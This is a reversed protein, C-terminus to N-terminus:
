GGPDAAESTGAPAAADDRANKWRYPLLEGVNAAPWTQVRLLVDTLWESPNVDNAVCTAVLSYLIATNEGALEHGVFLFNKRGLAVGRLAREAANNDPPLQVNSLFRTMETWHDLLYGCATAVPGRPPWKAQEAEAWAKLDDMAKRSRSQRLAHHQSTRVIGQAKAEAEVRYVELILALAADVSPVKERLEYLKRRAHALCGARERGEPTTVPNYGTYADVVLAGQSGGLVAVPTEGSRSTSYRYGIRATEDDDSLFTWMWGNGSHGRKEGRQRKLVTEDAHVVDQQAIEEMLATHLPALEAAARHFLDVMTNKSVLLGEREYRQELRHFPLADKCKSAVVDAVVSAGYQGQQGFRRLPSSATEIHECARCVKKHVVHRHRVFRAPEREVVVSVEGEGLPEMPGAKCRPCCDAIESAVEHVFPITPLAKKAERSEQRLAQTAVPDARTGDAQRLADAKPPMRESRRGMRHREHEALRAELRAIQQAQEALREHLTAAEHKFPCDHDPEVPPM